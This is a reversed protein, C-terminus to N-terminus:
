RIYIRIKFSTESSLDWEYSDNFLCCKTWDILWELDDGEDWDGSQPLSGDCLINNIGLGDYYLRGDYYEFQDGMNHWYNFTDSGVAILIGYLEGDEMQPFNTRDLRIGWRDSDIWILPDGISCIPESVYSCGLNELCHPDNFVAGNIPNPYDLYGQASITTLAFVGIVTLFLKRLKSNLSSQKNM